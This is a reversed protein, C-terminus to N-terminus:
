HNTIFDNHNLLARALSERSRATARDRHDPSQRYIERQKAVFRLCAKREATTPQRCLVTEFIATVFDHDALSNSDIRSALHRANSTTLDSNVLALAQQPVISDTRRYCDGPDPPDFTSLFPMMGGAEPFVTFYLSRRQSSSEQGVDVEPGGITMDLRGAVALVSDRIVEAELRQRDRKWWTRNDQDKAVNPHDLGPRSSLRYTRSTVILRHLHKMSWDRDMWEVALWDLLQPHIPPEGGRGFDFVTAVLPRGFHRAWIHNVAVRATLPHDRNTLWRALAARRGSSIRPYQPGLPQYDGTPDAPQQLKDLQQRATDLKAQISSLQQTDPEAAAALKEADRELQAVELRQEARQFEREAVVAARIATAVMEDHGASDSTELYRLRDAAIRAETWELERQARQLQEALPKTASNAASNAASNSPPPPSDSGAQDIEAQLAAVQQRCRALEEDGVFSRLAPYWAVPPLEVQEPTPLVNRFVAPVGATVPPRDFRDRTDGLRYMHTPEDLTLDYVRPLGAAIPKLSAGSGPQYRKYKELRGGNPVRDHRLELPEFFARLRFYDEQLIPDYKHDHCHACNFRLGMFAKGTHEVLDQKWTDYNLSFWNRVIFGLAAAREDDGPHLEDAALMERVMQDYGKDANLSHIIWDRWRWIHPYSNRVDGVQRRGYWDSYRWIDMWHRGWREGYQPRNLLDDVVREYADERDDAVFAHLEQRTPPVGILDLYVRRLLIERDALDLPVIELRQQSARIFTDIPNVRWAPDDVAPLAGRLPPQFAWHDRPDAAPAEDAPFAAGSEIWRRLAKRQEGDLPEGEPPMRDEPDAATVREWLLSQDLKGATIAAGSDGGRHALAATDLRLGGEQKLAGHCSVCRQQLLPRVSQRYIAISDVDAPLGPTCWTCLIIVLLHRRSVISVYFGGSNATSRPSLISSQVMGVCRITGFGIEPQRHAVSEWPSRVM